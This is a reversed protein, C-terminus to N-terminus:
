IKSQSKIFLRVQLYIDLAKKANKELAEAHIALRCNMKFVLSVGKYDLNTPATFSQAENILSGYKLKNKSHFALTFEMDSLDPWDSTAM